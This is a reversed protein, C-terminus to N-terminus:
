DYGTSRPAIHGGGLRLVELLASANVPLPTGSIAASDSVLTPARDRDGPVITMHVNDVM